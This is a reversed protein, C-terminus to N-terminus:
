YAYIVIAEEYGHEEIHKEAEEESIGLRNMLTIVCDDYDDFFENDEWYLFPEYAVYLDRRMVMQEDYRWESLASVFIEASPHKKREKQLAELIDM